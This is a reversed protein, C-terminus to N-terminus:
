NRDFGFLERIIEVSIQAAQPNKLVSSLMLIGEETFFYQNNEELLFDSPFRALHRKVAGRLKGASVGYLKAVDKDRAVRHGQM